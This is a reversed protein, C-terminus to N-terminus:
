LAALRDVLQVLAPVVVVENAQLAPPHFLEVVGLDLFALVLHRLLTAELDVVVLEVQVGIAYLRVARVPGLRSRSPNEKTFARAKTTAAANASAASASGASACFAGTARGGTVSTSTTDSGGSARAVSSRM